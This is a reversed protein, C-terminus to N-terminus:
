KGIRGARRFALAADALSRIVAATEVAARKNGDFSALLREAQRMALLAVRDAPLSLDSVDRLASPIEPSTPVELSVTPTTDDSMYDVETGLISIKPGM